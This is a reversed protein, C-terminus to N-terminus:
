TEPEPIKDLILIIYLYLIKFAQCINYFPNDSMRRNPRPFTNGGVSSPFCPIQLYLSKTALCSYYLDPHFLYQRVIHPLSFARTASTFLCDLFKLGSKNASLTSSNRFFTKNLYSISLLNNEISSM